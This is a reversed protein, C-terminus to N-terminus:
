PVLPRPHASWGAARQGKGPQGLDGIEARVRDAQSLLQRVVEPHQASVEHDEALDHRVDYLALAAPASFSIPLM